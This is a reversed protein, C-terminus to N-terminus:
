ATIIPLKVNSPHDRDHYISQVALIMETDSAPDNGTNHNPFALNKAGSTITVRIRHGAKFTNATKAMRICYKEINGPELLEPKEFSNRYRARLIGDTLRISNGDADVDELRVLWDTDRSSSSAYIEAFINGAIKVEEKLVDSTFVLVDDRLDVDNYNASVNMENESVDILFPAPDLPNFTYSDCLEDSPMDMDLKGDGGSSAACGGSHIYLRRYEVNEPPWKEADVWKNEGNMYYQVDPVSEVNNDIGKLFRDFWKLYLIDLDYRVANDGFKVGHIERSTNFAHKWPGFILKQNKRENKENMEWAATSGMGNDDYWGSIIISPVDISGSKLSWDFKQWFGDNDPHAMYEDWCGINRGLAKKPIDRIPRYNIIEDWDDRAMAERNMRKDAMMFLWALTGSSYIGGKRKIDIFPPGATVMSVIAKLHSNGSSAAAWQVYGLYSGGIMGVNGNSWSQGAIWNLTDDGDEMEFKYPSWEGESDDRGRVDQVVLAYGRRVFKLWPSYKGKIVRGYPTRVLVAPYRAGDKASPLWVETALSISDRTKVYYTGMHRVNYMDKSVSNDEWLSLPTLGEYGQKVLIICRTGTPLIFGKINNGSLLFDVPLGTGRYVWIWAEEPNGSAQGEVSMYRSLSRDPGLEIYDESECGSATVLDIYKPIDKLAESYLATDKSDMKHWSLMKGTEMDKERIFIDKEEFSIDAIHSGSEYFLFLKEELGINNM